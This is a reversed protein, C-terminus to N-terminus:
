LKLKRAAVVYFHICDHFTHRFKHVTLHKMELRIRTLFTLGEMSDVNSVQNPEPRIFKLLIKKFINCEVNLNNWKM